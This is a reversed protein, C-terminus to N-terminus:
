LSAKKVPKPFKIDINQTSGGRKFSVKVTAGAEVDKMAIRVDDVEKVEKGNFSIIVDDKQLGAKAAPSDDNVDLVKVGGGEELDEIQVGLRPKGLFGYARVGQGNNFNFDFDHDALAFASGFSNKNKQLTASATQEKGDRKYTVTVKEEPKFKGIAMPLDDSDAVNFENVKTIIDGVKLGAKEAAGDKSLETIKAGGETDATSVGLVASNSNWSFVDGDVGAIAMPARPGKGQSWVRPPSAVKFHDRGTIVRVDGKYDEAPKGNITVKDGDVVITMKETSDGDNTTVITISKRKKEVEKKEKQATATTLSLVAALVLASTKWNTNM